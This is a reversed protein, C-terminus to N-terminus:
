RKPADDERVTTEGVMRFCCSEYYRRLNQDSAGQSRVFERWQISDEIEGPNKMPEADMLGSLLDRRLDGM